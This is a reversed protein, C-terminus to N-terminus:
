YVEHSPANSTDQHYTNKLPKAQYHYGEEEQPPPTRCKFTLWCDPIPSSHIVIVFRDMFYSHTYHSGTSSPATSYCDMDSLVPSPPPTEYDPEDRFWDQLERLWVQPDHSPFGMSCHLLILLLSPYRSSYNGSPFNM